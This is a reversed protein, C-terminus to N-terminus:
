RWYSSFFDFYPTLYFIYVALIIPAMPVKKMKTESKGPIGYFIFYSFDSFNSSLSHRKLQWLAVFTFLIISLLLLLYTDGVPIFLAVVAFLKVDGAGLAKFSTATTIGWFLFLPIFVLLFNLLLSGLSSSILGLISLLIATFIGVTHLRNPIKTTKWDFYAAISLFIFLIILHM